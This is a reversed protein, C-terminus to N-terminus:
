SGTKTIFQVLGGSAIVTQGTVYSAADSALFVALRGIEEPEGWRGLPSFRNQVAKVDDRGKYRAEVMPTRVPGPAICNARIGKIGYESAITQTISIVGAKAAGYGISAEYPVLGALSSINVISGKAGKALVQTIFAKCCLFQSTVNVQLLKEWLDLSMDVITRKEGDAVFSGVNNVLVDVSGLQAVAAAVMSNVSQESTVDTQIVLAKSGKERVMAATEEGADRRFEAIVVDAGANAMELAIGRGIGQGSGTVIAVKGDLSYATDDRMHFTRRALFYPRVRRARGTGYAVIGYERPTTPSVSFAPVPM